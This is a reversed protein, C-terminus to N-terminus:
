KELVKKLADFDITDEKDDRDQHENSDNEKTVETFEADVVEDKNNESKKDDVIEAPEPTKEMEPGTKKIGLNQMQEDSLGFVQQIKELLRQKTEGLEAKLIKTEPPIFNLGDEDYRPIIHIMFHPAKQGAVAGNAVFINTGKVQLSKLLSNSIRKSIKFMHGVDEDSIQPLIAQHNKPILLVHGPNAPNIDLFAMVGSDEYVKKSPVKGSVIHCFICNQEQMQVIEEPSMNKLEEETVM